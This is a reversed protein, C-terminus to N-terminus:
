GGKRREDPPLQNKPDAEREFKAILGQHAHCGRASRDVTNAWGSLGAISARLRKEAPSLPM